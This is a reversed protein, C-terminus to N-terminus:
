KRFGSMFDYPSYGMMKSYLSLKDCKRLINDIPDSSYKRYGGYNGLLDYIDMYDYSSPTSPYYHHNVEVTTNKASKLIESMEKLLTDGNTGLSGLDFVSIKEALKKKYEKSKEENKEVYDYYTILASGALYFYGLLDMDDQYPHAVSHSSHASSPEDEYKANMVMDYYVK